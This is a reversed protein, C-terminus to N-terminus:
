KVSPFEGIKACVNHSGPFHQKTMESVDIMTMTAESLWTLPRPIRIRAMIHQTNAHGRVKLQVLAHNIIKNDIFQNQGEIRHHHVKKGARDM